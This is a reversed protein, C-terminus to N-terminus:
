ALFTTFGKTTSDNPKIMKPPAVAFNTDNVLTKVFEGEKTFTASVPRKQVVAHCDVSNGVWPRDTAIIIKVAARQMWAALNIFVALCFLIKVEFIEGRITRM